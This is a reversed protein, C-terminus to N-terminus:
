QWTCLAECPLRAAVAARCPQAAERRQSHGPGAACALSPSLIQLARSACFSLSSVRQSCWSRTKTHFHIEVCGLSSQVCSPLKCFSFATVVVCCAHVCKWGLGASRVLFSTYDRSSFSADWLTVELQSTEPDAIHLAFQEREFSLCRLSVALPCVILKRQIDNVANVM